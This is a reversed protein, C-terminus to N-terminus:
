RNRKKTSELKEISQQKAYESLLSTNIVREEWTKLSIEGKLYKEIMLSAIPAAVTAGYGGNEVFIALAIKPNDKPAFALFISHDALEYKVGNKKIFNQVTGTKGCIDIGEVKVHRATGTNYVDFMGAIVPEFHEADVTTIKPKTYEKNDIKIGQIKKLVHPTYYFGRNAIAVAMNALQIPTTVIEGQGISNSIITSFRWNKNPYYHNYYDSNPIHGKTGIPLDYGLYEGLGFSNLHKAWIDLSQQPTPYKEIIRKYVNAFYSNCSKAIGLQLKIPQGTIGCHCGMRAGRGYSYGHHCYFPTDKTIVKEQLGILGQILKFPSGPAYSAQLGRDLMPKNISDNFLLVSNKSRLRGVMLNPDYSPATVLALIEGSSPEIAVIGGHKNTMLLEGYQQLELDITLTLDKGAEEITDFTGEKYSGIVRNLRNRVKYAIGKRGRLLEEYQKEVGQTGVLEGPVYYPNKKALEENVENVYGLINAATPNPYTRLFKKQIYFGRFKHISEQLFAYEEKSVHNLFVSSLWPSYVTAKKLKKKFEYKTINLLKCFKATDMKVVENPVVNVDYSIENAVLLKGKRDYIFGREPYTFIKKISASQLTLGDEDNNIVQLYFLRAIFILSTCILIIPFLASRKM